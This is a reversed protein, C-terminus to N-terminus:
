PTDGRSRLRALLPAPTTEQKLQEALKLGKEVAADMQEQHDWYYALASHIQGLSLSPHQFKLEGPSWGYALSDLVLDSVKMSTDAIYPVGERLVIHEYETRVSTM